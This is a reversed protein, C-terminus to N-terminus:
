KSLSFKQQHFGVPASIIVYYSNGLMALPSFKDVSGTFVKTIEIEGESESDSSVNSAVLSQTLVSSTFNYTSCLNKSHEKGQMYFMAM